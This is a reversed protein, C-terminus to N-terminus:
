QHAVHIMITRVVRVGRAVVPIRYRFFRRGGTLADLARDLVGDAVHGVVLAEFFLALTLVGGADVSLPLVVGDLMASQRRFIASQLPGGPIRAAREVYM